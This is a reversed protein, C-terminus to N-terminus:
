KDRWNEGFVRTMVADRIDDPWQVFELEYAFDSGYERRKTHTITIHYCVALM